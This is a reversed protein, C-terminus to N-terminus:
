GAILIVVGSKVQCEQPISVGTTHVCYQTKPQMQTCLSGDHHWFAYLQIKSEQRCYQQQHQLFFHRSSDVGKPMLIVLLGPSIGPQGFASATFSNHTQLTHYLAM